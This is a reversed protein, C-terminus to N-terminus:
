EIESYITTLFDGYSKELKYIDGSKINIGATGYPNSNIKFASFQFFQKGENINPRVNISSGLFKKTSLTYTEGSIMEKKVFSRPALEITQKDLGVKQLKSSSSVIYLLNSQDPMEKESIEYLSLKYHAPDFSRPSNDISTFEKNSFANAGISKAKKYILNFVAVDDSSFGQVEIEGLYNANVTNPDIKYFFKDKNTGTKEVHNLIVNQALTFNLMLLTILTIFREM